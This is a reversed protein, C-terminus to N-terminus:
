PTAIAARLKDLDVVLDAHNVGGPPLPDAVACRLGQYRLGLAEAFPGYWDWFEDDDGQRLELVKGSRMFMCNTLQAGHPGVIFTASAAAQVQAAPDSGDIELRAFGERHLLRAVDRENAIRRRGALRPLYLRDPGSGAPVLSSVRAAVERLEPGFRPILPFILQDIHVRTRLGVWTVPFEPFARLTFGVYPQRRYYAPLLLASADGAAVLRPLCESMWHFYSDPSWNDVVWIAQDVSERRRLLNKVLFAAYRSPRRYHAADMDRVFSERLIRPGRFILGEHNVCVNRLPSGLV